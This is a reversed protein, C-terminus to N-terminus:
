SFATSSSSKGATENMRSIDCGCFMSRMSLTISNLHNAYEGRFTYKRPRNAPTASNTSAGSKPDPVEPTYTRTRDGTCFSTAAAAEKQVPSLVLNRKKIQKAFPAAEPRKASPPSASEWIRVFRRTPHQQRFERELATSPATSQAERKPVERKPVERKSSRTRPKESPTKANPSEREESYTNVQTPTSNGSNPHM